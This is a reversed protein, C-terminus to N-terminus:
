HLFSCRSFDVSKPTIRKDKDSAGKDAKPPREATAARCSTVSTSRYHRYREPPLRLSLLVGRATATAVHRHMFTPCRSVGCAIHKAEKRETHIYLVHLLDYSHSFDPSRLSRLHLLTPPASGIISTAM